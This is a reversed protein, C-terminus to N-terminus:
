AEWSNHLHLFSVQEQETRGREYDSGAKGRRTLRNRAQDGACAQEPFPFARLHRELDGRVADGGPV